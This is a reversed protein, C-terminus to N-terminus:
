VSASPKRELAELNGGARREAEAAREVAGNLERVLSGIRLSLVFRREMAGLIKDRDDTIMFLKEGDTVYRLSAAAARTAAAQERLPRL